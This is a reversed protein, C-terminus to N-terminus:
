PGTMGTRGTPGTVGTAGTPGTAGTAGTPGTSGTPGTPGNLTLTGTVLLGMFRTGKSSGAMQSDALVGSAPSVAQRAILLSEAESALYCIIGPTQAFGGEAIDATRAAEITITFTHGDGAGALTIAIVRHAVQLAYIAAIAATAKAQLDAPDASEVITPTVSLTASNITASGFRSM